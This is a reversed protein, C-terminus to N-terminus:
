LLMLSPYRTNVEGPYSRPEFRPDIETRTFDFLSGSGTAIVVTWGDTDANTVNNGYGDKPRVLLSGTTVEGGVAVDTLSDLAVSSRGADILDPTIVVPISRVAENLEPQASSYVIEVEGNL